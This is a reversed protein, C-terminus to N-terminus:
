AFLYDPHHLAVAANFGSGLALWPRAGISEHVPAQATEAGPLPSLFDEHTLATGPTVRAFLVQAAAGTGDSDYYIRGTASDYIIRDAADNASAGLQFEATSVTSGGLGTFIDHSLYFSDDAVVFDTVTDVNTAANLASDFQFIDIGAGGVLTDNGGRGNISDNGLYGNLTNAGSSGTLVDGFGSGILNEIGALTDIGAGSTNQAAAIGLNVYVASAATAYNAVDVGNGGNLVDNGLGGDLADAGEGGILSDNGAAGRLIDNGLYGNLSNAGANGTLTDAFGSGILNEVATLADSGAGLTNQAGALALNVSVAATAASYTAVDVGNGGNLVDNGLGGDLADAGEGGLLTDNGGLGRLIDNGLYGNLTNAAANGALTDAFASGTANEIAVLTDVGAGLTNQAGALGLNVTVAAAAAAYYAVDTGSGGDLIDNGAGGVLSDAGSGGFLTDNATDGYLIDNGGQGAITDDGDGGHITDNGMTTPAAVAHGSVSVHAVFTEGGEFLDNDAERFRIVVTQAAGSTNTVSLYPDFASVSGGAGLSQTEDDSSAILTGLSDYLDIIVDTDSGIPHFGFDVDITITQGAGVTVSSFHMQGADALVYLSTHPTTTSNAIFPNEDLSWPATSSDLGYPSLPSNLTGTNYQGSSDGLIFDDGDGGSLSDNSFGLLFDDGSTASETWM